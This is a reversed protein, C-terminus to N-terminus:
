KDFIEEVQKLLNDLEARNEENTRWFKRYSTLFREMESYSSFSRLLWGSGRDYILVTCARAEPVPYLLLDDLVKMRSLLVSFLGKLNGEQLIARPLHVSVAVKLHHLKFMKQFAPWGYFSFSYPVEIFTVAELATAESTMDIQLQIGECYPLVEDKVTEWSTPHFGM